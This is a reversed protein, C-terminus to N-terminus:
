SEPLSRMVKRVIKIDSVKKGLNIMSNRIESLRGFFDNFTEDELMKIEEFQSVLMQLNSAKIFNTGEYTTELIDWADKGSDCNSIRSFETQSITLSLANMARDNAMRTQKEVNSWETTPKDQANFGFEIISWVGISKKLFIEYPIEL